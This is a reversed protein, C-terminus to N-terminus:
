GGRCDLVAHAGLQPVSFRVQMSIARASAPSPGLMARMATKGEHAAWVVFHNRVVSTRSRM